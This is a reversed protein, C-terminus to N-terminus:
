SSSQVTVALRYTGASGTCRLAEGCSVRSATIQATGPAIAVFVATVTGCGQGPVCGSPNPSVKPSGDPAMVAANSSGAFDWYTSHLIVSVRDGVHVTIRHGNEGDTATLAAATRPSTAAPLQGHSPLGGCATSMACLAATIAIALNWRM